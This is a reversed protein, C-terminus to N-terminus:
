HCSLPQKLLTLTRDNGKIQILYLEQYEQESLENTNQKSLLQALQPTTNSHGVILTNKKQQTLEIVLQELQDPAYNKVELKQQEATPQATEMTRNYNTSYVSEINAKELISALQKARTAGCQTLSPNTKVKQKEAHRVLYINYYKEIDNNIENAFCPLSLFVLTLLATSKKM